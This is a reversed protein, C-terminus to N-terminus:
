RPRADDVASAITTRESSAPQAAVLVRPRRDADAQQQQREHEPAVDVACRRVSEIPGNLPWGDSSSFTM